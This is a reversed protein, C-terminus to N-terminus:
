GHDAHRRGIAGDDVRPEFGVAGLLARRPHVAAVAEFHDADGVLVALDLNRGFRCPRADALLHPQDRAVAVGGHVQVVPVDAHAVAADLRQPRDLRAAGADSFGLLYVGPHLLRGHALVHVVALAA